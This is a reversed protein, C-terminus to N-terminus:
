RSARIGEKGDAAQASAGSVPQFQGQGDPDVEIRVDGGPAYTLRRTPRGRHTDDLMLVALRGRDYQEWTDPLGDHDSDIETRVLEKDHYFERRDIVRDRRTSIDLRLDAGSSYAWSDEIGDHRTSGGVRLLRGDTDYYEWRDILGDGDADGELRVPRGNKMYTRVDVRGDRDYDDDVRILEHTHEDYVPTALPGRSCAAAALTIITTLLLLPQKV